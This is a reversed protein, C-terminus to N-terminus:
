RARKSAIGEMGPSKEHWPSFQHAGYFNKAAKGAIRVTDEDCGYMTDFLKANYGLKRSERLLASSTGITGLHFIYDARARKLNLVQSSAEISGFNLVQESVINLNMNRAYERTANLVNRGSENDAYVIAIRPNKEQLDNVMYDIM